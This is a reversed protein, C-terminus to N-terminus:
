CSGSEERDEPPSKKWEQILDHAKSATAPNESTMLPHPIAQAKFKSNALEKSIGKLEAESPELKIGEVLQAFDSGRDGGCYVKLADEL